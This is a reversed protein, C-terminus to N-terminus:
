LLPSGGQSDRLPCLRAMMQAKASSEPHRWGEQWIGIVPSQIFWNFCVTTPLQPGATVKQTNRRIDAHPGASPQFVCLRFSRDRSTPPQARRQGAEWSRGRPGLFAAPDDGQGQQVEKVEECGVTESHTDERGRNPSRTGDPSM